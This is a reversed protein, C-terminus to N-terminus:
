APQPKPPLILKEPNTRVWKIAASALQPEFQTEECRKLEEILMDVSYAEKYTRQMLMADISDAINLVRSGLPIEEGAMHDPYGSGDWNEHHHCVLHPVGAFLSISKLIEAGLRPHRRIQEFEEDNLSGPKTLITDPVGIKGIDHLMGAIRITETEKQPQGIQRALQVAYFAVHESHKRTFPDKAEVTNVLAVVIEVSIRETKAYSRLADAAKMSLCPTHSDESIAQSISEVLQEIEFPKYFYDHAGMSIAKALYDADDVGTILIVKCTPVSKRSYSLLDLGTMESMVIDSVLVRFGGKQLLKLAEQPKTVTVCDLGSQTLGDRILNCVQQEDDVVLISTPATKM